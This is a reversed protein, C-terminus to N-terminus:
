VPTWRCPPADM